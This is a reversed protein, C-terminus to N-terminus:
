NGGFQIAARAYAYRERDYSVSLDEDDYFEFRSQFAFGGEVSLLLSEFLPMRVSPGITGVSYRLLPNDVGYKEPDGHYQNGDIMLVLGLELNPRALYWLEFNAPVIANAKLNSGNTWELALVPLPFPEGYITSYAAGFGLSFNENFRRILVGAVQIVFDDSSLDGEFDSAIGPAVFSLVSWKKSFEHTLLLTYEIGHILEVRDTGGEAEDWNSYDLDIREYAIGNALMTRGESFLLPYSIDLNFARLRVELDETFTGPTPDALHRSPFYDYRISIQAYAANSVGFMLLGLAACSLCIKTLLERM